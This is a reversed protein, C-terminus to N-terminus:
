ESPSVLSPTQASPTILQKKISSKLKITATIPEDPACVESVLYRGNPSVYVLTPV